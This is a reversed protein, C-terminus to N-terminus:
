SKCGSIRLCYKNAVKNMSHVLFEGSSEDRLKMLEKKIEKIKEQHKRIHYQVMDLIAQARIENAEFQNRLLSVREQRSSSIQDIIDGFSSERPKLRLVGDKERNELSIAQQRLERIRQLKENYVGVYARLNGEDEEYNNLRKELQAIRAGEIEFDGTSNLSPSIGNSDLYELILMVKDPGQKKRQQLM